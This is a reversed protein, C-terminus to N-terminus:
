RRRNRRTSKRSRGGRWHPKAKVRTNVGSIRNIHKCRSMIARKKFSPLQDRPYEPNNVEKGRRTIKRPIGLRTACTALLSNKSNNSAMANAAANAMKNAQKSTAGAAVAAAAGVAAAAASSEGAAAAAAVAAGAAAAEAANAGPAEEAAAAAAPGAAAVADAVVQSSQSTEFNSNNSYASRPTPM